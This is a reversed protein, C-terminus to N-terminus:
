LIKVLDNPFLILKQTIRNNSSISKDKYYELSLWTRKFIIRLSSKQISTFTMERGEPLIITMTQDWCLRYQRLCDKVQLDTLPAEMQHILAKSQHKIRVQDQETKSPPNQCKIQSLNNFATSLNCLITKTIHLTVTVRPAKLGTKTTMKASNWKAM